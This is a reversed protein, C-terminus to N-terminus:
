EGTLPKSQYTEGPQGISESYSNHEPAKLGIRELTHVLGREIRRMGSVGKIDGASTFPDVLVTLMGCRNGFVIDTFVRDGVLLYKDLPHQLMKETADRGAPKKRWGRRLVRVGIREELARAGEYNHDDNSGVSNSSIIVNNAGFRLVSKDFADQVNPHIDGEQLPPTLTNDKDYVVGKIGYGLAEKFDIHNINPVTYHPIAWSPHRAVLLPALMGPINVMQGKRSVM